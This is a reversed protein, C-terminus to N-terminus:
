FMLNASAGKQKGDGLWSAWITSPMKSLSAHRNVHYNNLIQNRHNKAIIPKHTVM